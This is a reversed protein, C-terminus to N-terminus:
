YPNGTKLALEIEHGPAFNSAFYRYSQERDSGGDDTLLLQKCFEAIDQIIREYRYYALATRDIKAPGYGQYFLAEERASHWVASGGVQSLDREKLAMLPTDWDVIYLEGDGAILLNGAHMDSHCLVFEAERNQLALALVDAQRVVEGIIERNEKMLVATKAAIPDQYTYQEVQELFDKVCERWCPSFIERAIMGGIGPPLRTSHIGQLAAGFLRWQRESLNVQYGDRGEVYPYLILKYEGLSGWGQGGATELPAIIAQVGVAKLHIPLNVCLPDFDGKRLKLFYRNNNANVVRFVATNVDAGLPLFCLEGVRLGFEEQLWAIIVSDQIDPRELM